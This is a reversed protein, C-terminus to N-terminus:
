AAALCRTRVDLDGADLRAEALPSPRPIVRVSVWLLVMVARSDLFPWSGAAAPARGAGRARPRDLGGAGGASLLRAHAPRRQDLLDLRQVCGQGVRFIERM